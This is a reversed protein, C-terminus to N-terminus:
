RRLIVIHSVIVQSFEPLERPNNRCLPTYYAPNPTATLSPLQLKPIRHRPGRKDRSPNPFNSLAFYRPAM